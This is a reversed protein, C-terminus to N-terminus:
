LPEFTIVERVRLKLADAVAQLRSDPLAAIQRSAYDSTKRRPRQQRLPTLTVRATAPSRIPRNPLRRIRQALVAGNGLYDSCWRLSVLAVVIAGRLHNTAAGWVTSPM